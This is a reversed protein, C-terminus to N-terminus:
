TENEGDSNLAIRWEFDAAQHVWLGRIRHPLASKVAARIAQEIQKAVKHTLRADDDFRLLCVIQVSNDKTPM